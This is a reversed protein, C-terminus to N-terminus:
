RGHRDITRCRYLLPFCKEQFKHIDYGKFFDDIKKFDVETSM